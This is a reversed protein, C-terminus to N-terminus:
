LPPPDMSMRSGPDAMLANFVRSDVKRSRGMASADGESGLGRRPGTAWLGPRIPAETHLSFEARRRAPAQGLACEGTNQWCAPIPGSAKCVAGPPGKSEVRNM